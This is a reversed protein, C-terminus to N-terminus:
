AAAIGTRLDHESLTFAGMDASLKASAMTMRRSMAGLTKGMEVTKRTEEDASEVMEHLSNLALSQQHNKESISSTLKDMNAIQSSIEDLHQGAANVLEAGASVQDSSDIILRKIGAAAESTSQALQRVESAVVAFGKGAEGARAAEVGANLALLNTQFSVDDILDVIQSIERSSAEIGRMAEIANHTVEGGQIASTKVDRASKAARSAQHATEGLTTKLNSATKTMEGLSKAQTDTLISMSQMAKALKQADAALEDSVVDAGSFAERLTQVAINFDERLVDYEQPFEVEIECTLDRGALQTLTQRFASIVVNAQEHAIDAEKKSEAVLRTEAELEQSKREIKRSAAARQAIAVCLILGEILVVGCHFGTRLLDNFLGGSVFLLNPAVLTLAIQFAMSLGCAWFLVPIRGMTSLLALFAFYLVHTDSQWPHGDFLATILMSQGLVCGTTVYDALKPAWRHSMMALAAFGIAGGFGLPVSAKAFFASFVTVPVMLLCALLPLNWRGYKRLVQILIDM